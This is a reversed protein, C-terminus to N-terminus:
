GVLKGFQEALAPGAGEDEHKFFVWLDKWDQGAFTDSWEELDGASYNERRLRAYGYPATRIVPPPEGEDADAVALAVGADSLATYVEDDFWSDHRFEFAARVDNSLAALFDGLLEVDKKLYPPLQFLLPGRRDGLEGSVDTLYELEDGADRLKKFHTIKRSAKLVFSFDEPVQECWDALVSRRPMRYFTNNIEVANLREGYYSLMDANKIKEPYFSGKWEKYSFGSTGIWTRV